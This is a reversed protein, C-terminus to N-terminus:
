WFFDILHCFTIFTVLFYLKTTIIDNNSLKSMKKIWFVGSRRIRFVTNWLIFKVFYHMMRQWKLWVANILKWFDELFTGAWSRTSVMKWRAKMHIKRLFFLKSDLIKRSITAKIQVMGTGRYRSGWLRFTRYVVFNNLIYFKKPFHEYKCCYGSSASEFHFFELAAM